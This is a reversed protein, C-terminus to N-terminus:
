RLAEIKEQTLGTATMIDEISLGLKLLNKTIEIAKKLEGRDTASAMQAIHDMERKLEAEYRALEEETWNFQNIAEYPIM